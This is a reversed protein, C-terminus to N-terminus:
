LVMEKSTQGMSLGALWIAMDDLVRSRRSQSCSDQDPFWARPLGCSEFNGRREGLIRRRPNRSDDTCEFEAFEATM